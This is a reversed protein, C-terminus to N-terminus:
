ARREAMAIVVIGAGILGLGGWALASPREGVIAVALLTAVVPEVLALSTASSASLRRLGYGFLLYAAAMPLLALYGLILVGRPSWVPDPGALAAWPLLVAAALVFIAAMVTRSDDGAVILRGGVFSYLAYGFGAVLGCVVGAPVNGGPLPHAGAALLAIGTVSAGTAVLWSPRVTSRDVFLELLAAFVPGSGLALANGVVVGVLSMSLYYLAAYLLVGVAGLLVWVVRRPSRLLRGVRRADLGALVVGGVGFTVLGITTANSGAPAFHAVTGTTGWLTCAALVAAVFRGSSVATAYGRTADM